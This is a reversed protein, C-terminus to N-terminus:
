TNKQLYNTFIFRFLNFYTHFRISYCRNYTDYQKKNNFYEEICLLITYFRYWGNFLIEQHSTNKIFTYDFRTKLSMERHSLFYM